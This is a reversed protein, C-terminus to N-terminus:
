NPVQYVESYRIVRNCYLEVCELVAVQTLDSLDDVGMVHSSRSIKSKKGGSLFGSSKQDSVVAALTGKKLGCRKKIM